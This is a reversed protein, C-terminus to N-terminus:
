GGQRERGGILSVKLVKFRGRRAAHTLHTSGCSHLSPSSAFIDMNTNRWAVYSGGKGGKGTGRGEEELVGGVEDEEDEENEAKVQTETVVEVVTERYM